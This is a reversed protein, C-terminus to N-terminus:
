PSGVLNFYLSDGISITGLSQSASVSVSSSGSIYLSTLTYRVWNTPNRALVIVTGIKLLGLVDQTGKAQQDTQSIFLQTAVDLSAQYTSITGNVVSSVIVETRINIVGSVSSVTGFAYTVTYERIGGPQLAIATVRYTVYQSGGDPNLQIYKGPTIADLFVGQDVDGFDTAGVWIKTVSALTASNLNVFADGVPSGTTSSFGWQNAASPFLGPDSGGSVAAYRYNIGPFGMQVSASPPADAVISLYVTNGSAIPTGYVASVTINASFNTANYDSNVIARSRNNADKAIEIIAGIKLRNVFDTVNKSSSDTTSITITQITLSALDFSRLQGANPPGGPSSFSFPVGPPTGPSPADSFINLYVVSGTAITGYVIPTGVTFANSAYDVTVAARIRNSADKAIEIIAGTKLRNVVDSSNKSSTDFISINIVGATALSSKLLSGANPVAVVTTSFNFAIGPPTGASSLPSGLISVFLTSGTAITGYSVISGLSFSGSAYDATIVGRVRNNADKAIEIIAGTKLRNVFDTASGSQADTESISIAGATTLNASRIQGTAATGATNLYAFQLGSAGGSGATGPIGPEGSPVVVAAAAITGSQGSIYNTLSVSTSSVVSFVKFVRGSIQLIMDASMFATSGVTAVVQANLAPINFQAAVTTYAAAGLLGNKGTPAIKAGTAVAGATADVNELVISTAAPVGVVKLAAAAGVAVIQNVTFGTSSDVAYTVQQGVAPIAAPTANTITAIASKGDVSILVWYAVNPPANGSGPTGNIYAYHGGGYAVFDYRTYTASPSYTGRDNLLSTINVSLSAGAATLLAVFDSAKIRESEGAWVGPSIERATELSLQAAPTNAPILNLDPIKKGSL